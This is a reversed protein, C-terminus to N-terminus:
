YLIVKLLVKDMLRILKSTLTTEDLNNGRFNKILVTVNM